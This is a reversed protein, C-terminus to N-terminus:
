EAGHTGHVIFGGNVGGASCAFALGEGVIGLRELFQFGRLNAPVQRKVRLM